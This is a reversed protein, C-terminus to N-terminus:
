ARLEYIRHTLAGRQIDADRRCRSFPQWGRIVSHGIEGQLRRRELRRRCRTSTSCGAKSRGWHGSAQGLLVTAGYGGWGRIGYGATGLRRLSAPVWPTFGRVRRRLLRLTSGGGGYSRRSAWGAVVSGIRLTGFGALTRRVEASVAVGGTLESGPLGVGSALVPLGGRLWCRCVRGRFGPGSAGESVAACGTGGRAKEAL